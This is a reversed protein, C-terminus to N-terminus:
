RPDIWDAIGQIIFVTFGVATSMPVLALLGVPIWTALDGPEDVFPSFMFVEVIATVLLLRWYWHGRM